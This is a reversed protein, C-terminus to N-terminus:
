KYLWIRLMSLLQGVDVPKSIYDSMGIALCKEKDGKMAKATLAIIPLKRFNEMKRIATTTEYGDMEPMMIDMLVLDVAPDAQLVSLAIKGNEATVCRLGEEELANTLSYINRMDDDVILIRKNKLLDDPQHLKRMLTQSEQPLKSQERHLFLTAEDLLREQSDATKLVVTNALRALRGQVEKTLDLGTYVIVPIKNLTDSIRIKELLDLGSMDPLGLDVIMCDYTDRTLMNYAESGQYASFCKVDGNGILQRIAENQEANDEVILLRKFKRASFKEIKDFMQQLDAAMAPKSVFDFAGHELAEKRNDWASLVIIPIHRLNTDHKIQRLIETGDTREQGIDLLIADPRFHRTYGIGTNTPKAIIGKYSHKHTFALMSSNFADDDGIILIIHDHEGLTERDDHADQLPEQAPTPRQLRPQLPAHDMKAPVAVQDSEPSQEVHISLPLYITFTSGKGEQSFVKISGGLAHTLERSISLGLGTGGYKRKTSGDAQQFAEFIIDQKDAPIGIGSDSVAFTIVPGEVPMPVNRLTPCDLQLSVKGGPPTFKFANSLLNRLIQELRQRDTAITVPMTESLLDITFDISRSLALETFMAFTSNIVQQLSVDTIELHMKGAEVKSLDLIENILTLLDKGSNHINRAFEIEKKGLVNNKNDTLLQALILISNLPTRLEHSMNALFESKYKSTVEIERAKVEIVAKADELARKQDELLRAREELMENTQRLEEQQIRLEMDSKELLETKAYLEENSQRLEEQQTELEESQLQTEELLATAKARVQASTFAIAITDASTHLYQKHLDTFGHLSALEIVGIVANEFLFPQAIVTKPQVNGFTTNLAFQGPPIDGAIITKKDAAAQGVLNQNYSITSRGTTNRDLAYASTLDLTHLDADATYLAGTSADLYTVMHNIVVSALENVTQNGQMGKTLASAGALNWNKEAAEKEARRLARLNTIIIFYVAALVLVIVGMLLSFILNFNRAGQESSEQRQALLDEEVTKARQLRDRIEDMIEKGSSSSEYIGTDILTKRRQGIQSDLYAIHRDIWPKLSDLNRQQVANDHTLEQAKIFHAELNRKGYIVPELYRENGTIIFGRAGTQMNIAHILVQDFEYLVEHTHNVWRSTAMFEEGNRFSFGAVLILILSCSTLGLLIKKDLTM